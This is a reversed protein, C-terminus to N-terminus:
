WRHRFHKIYPDYYVGISHKRVMKHYNLSNLAFRCCLAAGNLPRSLSILNLSPYRHPLVQRLLLYIEIKWLSKSQTEAFDREWLRSARSADVANFFVVFEDRNQCAAADAALNGQSQSRPSGMCKDACVDVRLSCFLSSFHATGALSPMNGIKSYVGHM